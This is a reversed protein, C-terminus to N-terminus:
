FLFFEFGDHRHFPVDGDGQIGPTTSRDYCLVPFSLPSLECDQM